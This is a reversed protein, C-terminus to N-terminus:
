AVTLVVITSNTVLSQEFDYILVLMCERCGAFM